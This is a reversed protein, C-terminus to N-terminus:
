IGVLAGPILTKLNLAAVINEVNKIALERYAAKLKCIRFTGWTRRSNHLSKERPKIGKFCDRIAKKFIFFYIMLMPRASIWLSKHSGMGSIISYIENNQMDECSQMTLVIIRDRIYILANHTPATVQGLDCLRSSAPCPKYASFLFVPCMTPMLLHHRASTM